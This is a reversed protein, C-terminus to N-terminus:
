REPQPFRKIFATVAERIERNPAWHTRGYSDCIGIRSPRYALICDAKLIFVLNLDAAMELRQPLKSCTPQDYDPVGIALRWQKRLRRVISDRAIVVGTCNIEGPGFNTCSLFILEDSVKGNTAIQRIGFRVRLKPKLIVDRYVNWGLSFASIVLAGISILVALNLTM